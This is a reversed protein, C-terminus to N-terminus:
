YSINGILYCSSNEIDLRNRIATMYTDSIATMLTIYNGANSASVNVRATFGGSVAGETNISYLLTGLNATDTPLASSIYIRPGSVSLRTQGFFGLMFASDTSVSFTLHTIIQSGLVPLSGCGRAANSTAGSSLYSVNNLYTAIDYTSTSNWAKVLTGVRYPEYLPTSPISASTIRDSINSWYTATTFATYLSSPVYVSGYQVTQVFYGTMPTYNFVSGTALTPVATVNTLDLTILSACGNFADAGITTCNGLKVSKLSYCNSFTSSAVTIVNSFNAEELSICYDFAKNVLATANPISVSSLEYCKQFCCSEVISIGSLNAEKLESCSQFAYSEAIALNPFYIESLNYCQWFADHQIHTVNPLSVATLNTCECFAYPRISTITSDAFKSITRQICQNAINNNITNFIM